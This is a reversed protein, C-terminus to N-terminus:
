CRWYKRGHTRHEVESSSSENEDGIFVIANEESTQSQEMTKGIPEDYVLYVTTNKVKFSRREFVFVVEVKNGPEISSVVIHGEV